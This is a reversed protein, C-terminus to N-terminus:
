QGLNITAAFSGGIQFFGLKTVLRVTGSESIGSTIHLLIEKAGVGRSWQGVARFLGVAARGGLMSGRLVQSTYIANITVILVGTGIHYEGVSAFVFGQPRGHVEAVAVLHRSGGALAQELLKRAKDRSFPIYGFRSEAHGVAVLDLLAEHDDDPMVLRFSLARTTAGPREDRASVPKPIAEVTREAVQPDVANLDDGSRVADGIGSRFSSVAGFLVEGFQVVGAIGCRSRTALSAHSGV